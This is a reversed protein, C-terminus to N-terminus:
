NINPDAQYEDIPEDSSDDMMEETIGEPPPVIHCNIKKCHPCYTYPSLTHLNKWYIGYRGCNCIKNCLSTLPHSIHYQSLM